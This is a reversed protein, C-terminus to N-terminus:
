FAINEVQAVPTESSDDSELQMLTSTQLRVRQAVHEIDLGLEQRRQRIASAIADAGLTVIASGYEVAEELVAIGYGQFAEWATLVHGTPNRAEDYIALQTRGRVFLRTSRRAAEEPSSTDIHPGFIRSLRHQETM